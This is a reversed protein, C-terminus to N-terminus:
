FLPQQRMDLPQQEAEDIAALWSQLTV